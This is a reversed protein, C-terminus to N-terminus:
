KDEKQANRIADIDRIRKADKESAGRLNEAKEYKIETERTKVKKTADSLSEYDTIRMEEGTEKNRTTKRLIENSAMETEALKINSNIGAAKGAEYDVSSIGIEELSSRSLNSKGTIPDKAAGILKNMNVEKVGSSQQRIWEKRLNEYQATNMKLNGNDMNRKITSLFQSSDAIDEINKKYDTFGNLAAEERELAQNKKHARSAKDLGFKGLTSAELQAASGIGKKYLANRSSGKKWLDSGVAGVKGSAGSRAGKLAAGPFSLLSRAAAGAMGKGGLGGARAAAAARGANGFVAGTAVAAGAAGFAAGKLMAFSEKFTGSADKIGFINSIFNPITKAFVLTGIVIFIRQWGTLNDSFLGFIGVLLGVSRIAILKLFLDAYSAVFQKVWAGFVKTKPDIFSMIAIPSLIELLLIKMNRIVVEVGLVVLMVLTAIGLIIATLTDINIKDDAYNDGVSVRNNMINDYKIQDKIEQDADRTTSVFSSLIAGAFNNSPNNVNDYYIEENKIQADELIEEQEPNFEGDEIRKQIEKYIPNDKDWPIDHEALCKLMNNFNKAGCILNNNKKFDQGKITLETGSYDFDCRNGSCTKVDKITPCTQEKKQFLNLIGDEEGDVLDIQKIGDDTEGSKPKITMPAFSISEIDFDLKGQFYYNIKGTEIKEPISYVLADSVDKTTCTRQPCYDVKLVNKFTIDKVEGTNPSEGTDVYAYYCRFEDGSVDRSSSANKKYVSFTIEIRAKRLGGNYKDSDKVKDGSVIKFDFSQITGDLKDDTTNVISDPKVYYCDWAYSTSCSHKINETNHLGYYVANGANISDSSAVWAAIEKALQDKKNSSCIIKGYSKWTAYMITNAPMTYNRKYMDYDGTGEPTRIMDTACAEHAYVDEIGTVNIKNFSVAEGNKMDDKMDDPIWTNGHKECEDKTEYYPNSCTGATDESDGTLDFLKDMLGNAGLVAEQLNGLQPFIVTDMSLLLIIAIVIRVVIKGGGTNKDTVKDPDVLMQLLNIVVRLFMYIGILAYLNKSLTSVIPSNFVDFVGNLEIVFDYLGAINWYISYVWSVVMNSFGDSIWGLILM